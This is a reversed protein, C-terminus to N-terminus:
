TCSSLLYNNYLMLIVFLVARRLPQHKWCIFLVYKSGISIPTLSYLNYKLLNIFVFFITLTLFYINFIFYMGVIVNFYIFQKTYWVYYSWTVKLNSFSLERFHKPYGPLWTCAWLATTINAFVNELILTNVYSGRGLRRGFCVCLKSSKM